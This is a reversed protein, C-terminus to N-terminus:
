PPAKPTVSPSTWFYPSSRTRSVGIESAAMAPTAVPAANVPMRGMASIWNMSKM